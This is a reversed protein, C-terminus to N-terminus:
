GRLEIISHPKAKITFNEVQIKNKYMSQYFAHLNNNIREIIENSFIYKKNIESYHSQNDSIYIGSIIEETKLTVLLPKLAYDLALRHCESGGSMIPLVTKNAFAGQPLLDIVSKLVGSYSSQYVPSAIIIGDAQKVRQIFAQIQSHQYKAKVLVNADFESVSVRYIEWDYQSLWQQAYDLLASSRSRLTPSGSIIMIKM